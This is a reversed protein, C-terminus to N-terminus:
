REDQGMYEREECSPCLDREGFCKTDVEYKANCQSCVGIPAVVTPSMTTAEVRLNAKEDTRGLRAWEIASHHETTTYITSSSGKFFMEEVMPGFIILVMTVITLNMSFDAIKYESSNVIINSRIWFITIILLLFEAITMLKTM